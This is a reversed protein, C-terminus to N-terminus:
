PAIKVFRRDRRGARSPTAPASERVAPAPHRLYTYLTARCIHLDRAIAAKPDRAAVRRRLEALQEANLAPMRGKFAGNRKAIAVGERQRERIIAREFEAVSGMVGLLLKAMPTDDGSFTLSEKRFEVKVGRVTLDRVIGLLDGLNRALRDMSHVVITDGDRVYAIMAELEPRKTDKGSKKEMFTRDFHEGELQRETKQDDSSVRVYAVRQVKTAPM